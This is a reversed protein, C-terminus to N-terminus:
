TRLGDPSVAAGYGYGGYGYPTSSAKRAKNLVLSVNDTRPLRAVADLATAYATQEAAVVFVIQGAIDALVGAEETQLLPSSDIVMIRDPYGESLETITRRMRDSALLETAHGHARGVPLLTLNPMDTTRLVQHVSLDDRVLSDMLGVHPDEVGLLNSAAAKTSDTDILLVNKEREMALSMALNVATFSKGEGSQSSTVLIVSTNVGLPANALNRVLPRKIARFQQAIISSPEDPSIMGKEKLAELPIHLKPGLDNQQPVPVSKLVRQAPAPSREVPNHDISGGDTKSQIAPRRMTKNTTLRSSVAKPTRPKLQTVTPFVPRQMAVQPKAAALERQVGESVQEPMVQAAREHLSPKAVPPNVPSQSAPIQETSAQTHTNEAAAGAMAAVFDAPQSDDGQSNLSSAATSITAPRTDDFRFGDDAPPQKEDNSSSSVVSSSGLYSLGSVNDAELEKIAQEITKM